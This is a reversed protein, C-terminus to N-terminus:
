SCARTTGCGTQIGDMSSNDDRGHMKLITRFQVLYSSWKDYGRFEPVRIKAWRYVDSRSSISGEQRRVDGVVNRSASVAGQAPPYRSRVSNSCSCSVVTKAETQSLEELM